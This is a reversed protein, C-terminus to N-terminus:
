SLFSEIIKFPAVFLAFLGWIISYYSHSNLTKNYPMGRPLKRAVRFPTLCFIAFDLFGSFVDVAELLAVLTSMQFEFPAM